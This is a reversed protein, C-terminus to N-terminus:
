KLQSWTLFLNIRCDKEWRRRRGKSLLLAKIICTGCWCNGGAFGFGAIRRSGPNLPLTYM